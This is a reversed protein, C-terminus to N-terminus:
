AIDVEPLYDLFGGNFFTSGNMWFEKRIRRKKRKYNRVAKAVTDYGTRYLKLKQAASVKHYGLQKPYLQWLEDFMACAQQLESPEERVAKESASPKNDADNGISAEKGNANM